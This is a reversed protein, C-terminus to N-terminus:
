RCQEVGIRGCDDSLPCSSCMPQRATCLYRGHFILTHHASLLRDAPWLSTLEEEVRDPDEHKTLGLRRSVRGVHTDVAIAPVGFCNAVIVAASKKGVGPLEELQARERPVVGGHQSMV